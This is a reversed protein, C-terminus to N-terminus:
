LPQTLIVGNIFAQDNKFSGWHKVHFAVAQAQKALSFIFSNYNKWDQYHGFRFHCADCLTILNDPTYRYDPFHHWPLAHHVELNKQYGCMQCIPQADHVFENRVKRWQYDAHLITFLDGEEKPTSLARSHLPDRARWSLRRSKFVQHKRTGTQPTTTTM